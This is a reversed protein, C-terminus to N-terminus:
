SMARISFGVQGGGGASHDMFPMGIAIVWMAMAIRVTLRPQALEFVQLLAAHLEVAADLVAHGM